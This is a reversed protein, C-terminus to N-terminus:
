QFIRWYSSKTTISGTPNKEGIDNGAVEGFKRFTKEGNSKKKYGWGWVEGTGIDTWAEGRAGKHFASARGFYTTGSGLDIAGNNLFGGNEIDFVYAKSRGANVTHTTPDCNGGMQANPFFLYSTAAMFIDGTDKDLFIRPGFPCTEGEQPSPLVYKFGKDSAPNFTSGPVSVLEGASVTGSGLNDEVLCYIIGPKRSGGFMDTDIPSGYESFALLTKKGANQIEYKNVFIPSYIPTHQTSEFIKDVVWSSPETGKLSVRYVNGRYTGFYFANTYDDSDDPDDYAVIPSFICNGVSSINTGSFRTQTADRLTYRYIKDGTYADVVYFSKGRTQPHSWNPNLNFGSGFAVVFRGLPYNGTTDPIRSISPISWTEGLPYDSDGVFRWLFQPHEVDTVDLAYYADGGAGLGFVCITHWNGNQDKIDDLRIPSDVYFYHPRRGYVRKGYINPQGQNNVDGNGYLEEYLKCMHSQGGPIVSSYGHLFDYPIYAWLEKGNIANFCHLMGDNAGVFIVPTRDKLQDAWQIYDYTRYANPNPPGLFAPTSYTIDGLDQKRIFKIFKKADNNDSIGTLQKIQSLNNLDFSFLSGSFNSAYVKRLSNYEDNSMERMEKIKDYADWLPPNKKSNKSFDHLFKIKSSDSPYTTIAQYARLHGSFVPSFTMSSKFVVNQVSVDDPMPENWSRADPKIFGLVPETDGSIEGGLKTLVQRLADILSSIKDAFYAHKTGGAAAINNLVNKQGQSQMGFGVIYTDINHSHLYSAAQEDYYESSYRDRWNYEYGRCTEMGDTILLAAKYRCDFFPDRKDEPKREKIGYMQHHGYEDTASNPDARFDCIYMPSSGSYTNLYYIAYLSSAIPTNGAAGIEKFFLHTDYYCYRHVYWNYKIQSEFPFPHTGKIAVASDPDAQHYHGHNDRYGYVNMDKDVWLKMEGRNDYGPTTSAAFWQEDDPDTSNPNDYDMPLDVLVHYPSDQNREYPKIRYNSECGSYHFIWPNDYKPYTYGHVTIKGNRRFLEFPKYHNYRKHYFNFAYSYHDGTYFKYKLEYNDYVWFSWRVSLSNVSWLTTLAQKAISIKSSSDDGIWHDVYDGGPTENMSGSTDLTVFLDPPLVRGIPDNPDYIPQGQGQQALLFLSMAGIFFLILIFFKNRM